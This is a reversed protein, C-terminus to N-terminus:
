SRGELRVIRDRTALKLKQLRKREMQERVGLYVRENYETLRRELLGHEMRLQDLVDSASGEGALVSPMLRSSPLPVSFSSM